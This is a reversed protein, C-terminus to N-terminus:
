RSQTKLTNIREPTLPVLKAMSELYSNLLNPNESSIVTDKIWPIVNKPSGYQLVYNTLDESFIDRLNPDRQIIALINKFHEPSLKSSGLWKLIFNEINTQKIQTAYREKDRKYLQRLVPAINQFLFMPVETYIGTGFQSIRKNISKVIDFSTGILIDKSYGADQYSESGLSYIGVEKTQKELWADVTEKFGLVDTGYVNGSVLIKKSPDDQNYYSKLLMRAIPKTINPDNKNVLYAIIAGDKIEGEVYDCNEGGEPREKDGPLAMCSTWGRDTSMGAIDYPHRSIVVMISTKKNAARDPDNNFRQILFDPTEYKTLVKGIKYLNKTDGDKKCLGAVYDELSFGYDQLRKSVMKTTDNNVFRPKTSNMELYIRYKGDFLEKLYEKNWGKVYMRFQSPTLAENIFKQFRM